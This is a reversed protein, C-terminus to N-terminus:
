RLPVLAESLPVTVLDADDRLLKQSPRGNLSAWSNAYVVVNSHGLLRYEAALHQAYQQIMDPQTAMMKVQLPTLSQRPYHTFSTKETRVTFDVLGTKEILMVRWSFRYGRETWNTTGPYFYHRLPLAIQLALFIVSAAIAPWPFKKDSVPESYTEQNHPYRPWDPAFFLTASILMIWSFIGVPFLLWISIHFVVCVLYAVCRTKPILLWIFITLDFFLGFCSMAYAVWRQTLLQGIFPIELYAQLWTQLPEANLIWDHGVKALGAFFYVLAVQARLLLYCWFPVTGSKGQHPSTMAWVNGTPLFCLLLSLLSVLYYHNLYTAKDILEVYTFAFFLIAASLRPRLGAALALSALGMVSFHIYMGIGPWPKIWDQGWYSFHYSPSIYLEHIWGKSWFRVVAFCMLLGFLLRFAALGRADVQRELYARFAHADIAM